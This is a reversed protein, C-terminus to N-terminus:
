DEASYKDYVNLMERHANDARELLENIDFVYWEASDSRKEEDYRLRKIKKAHSQWDRSGILYGAIKFSNGPKKANLFQETERMYDKLQQLHDVHLPTNPAKLEVIVIRNLSDSSLVFTLDPRRNSKLAGVEEESTKEYGGELADDINLAQTLEASLTKETQNSTLFAWFTPDILWPNKKLLEHLKEENNGQKFDAFKCLRRLAEIGELRGTVIKNYDDFEAATLDALARVLDPFNPHESKSIEKIALMLGGFGLGQVVVPLTERYYVDETEDASSAALKAALQFAIGRRRKPLNAEQIVKRTFSDSKVKQASTEEKTGQYAICAQKMEETLFKRLRSLVSTDWRLDQRDSAIYDAIQEDIFDAHAEGDLYHTNQFGHMGTGLDLLSPASALRQRAYIRVGRESASLQKGKPTFRIRYKFSYRQDEFTVEDEVLQSQPVTSDNPYAFAYDRTFPPVSEGNLRIDFEEKKVISFHRAIQGKITEARARSPEFALRSLVIRTGSPELGAGNLVKSEEVLVNETTEHGILEDYDLSFKIAYEQGEPRTYVDVRRAIGFGALKGIGKRGMVPRRKPSRDGGKKLRRKLGIRLFKEQIAVRSMGHGRDEITLTLGEPLTQEELPRDLTGEKWRERLSERAEKIQGEDIIVNVWPSDADYANAVFEVLVRPLSTYLNLGLTEVIDPAVEIKLADETTRTM